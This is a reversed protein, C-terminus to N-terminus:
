EEAFGAGVITGLIIFIAIVIIIGLTGSM